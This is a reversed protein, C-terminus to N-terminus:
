SHKTALMGSFREGNAPLGLPVGGTDRHTRCRRGAEARDVEGFAVMPVSDKGSYGTGRSRFDLSVVTATPGVVVLHDVLVRQLALCGNSCLGHHFHVVM